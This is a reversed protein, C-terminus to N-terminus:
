PHKLFIDQFIKKKLYLSNGKRSKLHFFFYHILHIHFVFDAERCNERKIINNKIM